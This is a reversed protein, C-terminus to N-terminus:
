NDDKDLNDIKLEKLLEKFDQPPECQFECTKGTSPEIFNLKYAHLAQRSFNGVVKKFRNSSKKELILNGDM